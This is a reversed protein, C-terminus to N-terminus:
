RRVRCAVRAGSIKSGVYGVHSGARCTVSRKATNPKAFKKGPDLRRQAHHRGLVELQYLEAERWLLRAHVAQRQGHHEVVRLLGRLGEGEHPEPLRRLDPVLGM